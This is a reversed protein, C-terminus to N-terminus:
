QVHDRLFHRDLRGDVACHTHERRSEVGTLFAVDRLDELQAAYRGLDLDLLCFPPYGSSIRLPLIM